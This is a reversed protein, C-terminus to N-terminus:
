RTQTEFRVRLHHSNESILDRRGGRARMELAEGLHKHALALHDPSDDRPPKDCLDSDADCAVELHNMAKKAHGWASDADAASPIGDDDDFAGDDHPLFKVHVARSVFQQPNFATEKSM